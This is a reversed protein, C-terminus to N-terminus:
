EDTKQKKIRKKVRKGSEEDMYYQYSYYYGKYHYYGYRSRSMDVDNLVIGLINAGARQLQEVAQRAAEMKTIGPKIVLLVGDVRHALIVSDTVAIVPPSDVLIIDALKGIEELIDYMKESGLLEAPNPPIEGVPLAMFNEAVTKQLSGNLDIKDAVFLSSLGNRNKLKLKEHVMPRRMDADVLVVKRGSQALVIGLNAVVTTKGDSPSPSTVLLTRLPTDVSAFQLNTRLSRFAEAIPSRPQEITILNGNGSEHRFIVGLIPLHLHQTVDDTGHITDDMAEIVFVVGVAVMLGIVGALATNTLTRPRIPKEPPIAPEIQVVNSTSASESVRVQEYSQLLSAYTQRYQALATELRDQEAASGNSAKLKELDKSTQQIQDDIRALQAELNQKSAAFRSSQLAQIQENFVTYLTNALDAALQPNTNEVKIVILQTDRVVEVKVLKALDDVSMGQINLRDLAAQLVPTKVIMQTYTQALRESTLISTYDTSKTSPAENILLTTSAQYVPTMRKSVIFATVASLITVAALLWAWQILIGIYRRLDDALSIEENTFENEM